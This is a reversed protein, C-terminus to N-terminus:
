FCVNIFKKFNMLKVCLILEKITQKNTIVINLLINKLYLFPISYIIFHKTKYIIM